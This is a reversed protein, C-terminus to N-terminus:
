TGHGISAEETNGDRATAECYRAIVRDGPLRREWAEVLRRDMSHPASTTGKSAHAVRPVYTGAAKHAAVKERQARRRASRSV